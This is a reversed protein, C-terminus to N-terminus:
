EEVEMAKRELKKYAARGVLIAILLLLLFFWWLMWGKSIGRGSGANTNVGPDSVLPVEEEVIEILEDGTLGTEGLVDNIAQDIDDFSDEGDEGDFESSEANEENGSFDGYRDDSGSQETDQVGTESGDGGDGESATDDTGNGDGSLETDETGDQAPNSGQAGGDDGREVDDAPDVVNGAGDADDDGGNGTNDDAGTNDDGGNGANDDDGAGTNDDDGNGANDDDAGTNDDDGNDANDDDSGEGESGTNDDSDDVDGEEPAPTVTPNENNTLFKGDILIDVVCLVTEPMEMGYGNVRNLIGAMDLGCDNLINWLEDYTYGANQMYGGVRLSEKVPKFQEHDFNSRIMNVIYDFVAVEDEPTMIKYNDM